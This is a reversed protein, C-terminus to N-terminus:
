IQLTDLQRLAQFAACFRLVETRSCHTDCPRDSDGSAALAERRRQRMPCATERMWDYICGSFGDMVKVHACELPFQVKLQPWLRDCRDGKTCDYIELAVGSEIAWADASEDVSSVTNSATGSLKLDCLLRTCAWATPATRGEAENPAASIKLLIQMRKKLTRNSAQGRRIV